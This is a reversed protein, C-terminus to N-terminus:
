RLTNEGSMWISIRHLRDGQFEFFNINDMVRKKGDTATRRVDFRTTAIGAAPDAIHRRNGHWATKVNQLRREFMQRIGTDRGSHTANDTIVCLTCDPTMVALTAEIDGADVADFYRDITEIMTEATRDRSLRDEM